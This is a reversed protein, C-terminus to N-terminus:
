RPRWRWRGNAPTSAPISRIALGLDRAAPDGLALGGDALVTFAILGIATPWTLIPLYWLYSIESWTAIWDDIQDFLWFAPFIPLLSVPPLVILMFVYFATM